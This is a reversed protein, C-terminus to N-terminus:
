SDGSSPLFFTRRSLKCRFLLGPLVVEVDLHVGKENGEIEKRKASVADVEVACAVVAMVVVFVHVSLLLVNDGSPM